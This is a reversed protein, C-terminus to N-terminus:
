HNWITYDYYIYPVDFTLLGYEKAKMVAVRLDKYAKQCLNTYNYSLLSGDHESIFQKLLDINRYDLILYEDRCIPCPSGTDIVGGRICLKRTKKPPFQGKFNRRYIKWVPDDGYTERYARSKLYRISVEVPIITTRDKSIPARQLALQDSQEVENLKTITPHMCKVPIVRSTLSPRIISAAFQLKNLILAM